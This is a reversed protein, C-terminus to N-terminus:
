NYNMISKSILFNNFTLPFLIMPVGHLNFHQISSYVVSKDRVSLMEHLFPEDIEPLM